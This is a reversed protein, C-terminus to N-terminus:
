INLNEMGIMEFTLAVLQLYLGTVKMICGLIVKLRSKIKAYKMYKNKDGLPM